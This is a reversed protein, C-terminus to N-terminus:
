NGDNTMAERMKQIQGAPDAGLGCVKSCLGCAICLAIGESKVMLGRNQGDRPDFFHRAEQAFAAPGAFLHPHKALSPCVSNCCLCEICRSAIKFHEFAQMDVAEPEEHATCQRELFLRLGPRRSEYEERDVVLDKLVRLGSLPEVTFEPNAAQRCSLAPKGDV